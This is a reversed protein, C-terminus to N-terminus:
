GWDPRLPLGSLGRDPRVALVQYVEIEGAEFGLASGALYLRWVRARGEGVLSAAEDYHQELNEVWARLTLAYHERLTECHRVELGAHQVRSVVTGIEHLEGDPFVYRPIFGKRGLSRSGAPRTIGHNLFLGGPALLAHMRSFYEALRNEGVHEFMGISSIADYPGDAVDRYDQLRITVQDQLGEERVRRTAYDAQEASLTVGTARVGYRRAAHIVMGGWGCGVDLLRIGPRLELKRSVLDYKNEQAAELGVSPSPWVACSYTMSPGLLLSYFDNSVDYHHSIAQADRHKSHLRGRVRAEEKPPSLPRGVGGSDRLLKLLAVLRTATLGESKLRDQLQLVTYVDGVVDIDGAVYARAFGLQGPATLMRRLADARRIELTARPSIPGARTGDYAAVAVSTGAVVAGLLGSVGARGATDNAQAFAAHRTPGKDVEM